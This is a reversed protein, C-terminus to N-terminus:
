ATASDAAQVAHHEFMSNQPIGSALGVLFDCKAYLNRGCIYIYIYIYIQLMLTGFSDYGQETMSM